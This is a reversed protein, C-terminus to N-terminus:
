VKTSKRIILKTELVIDKDIKEKGEIINILIEVARYGMQYNPQKVTTLTPEVLRSMYIDDYGVIGIDKPINLGRDKFSKMVGFAILDNGCFVSDFKIKSDLVKKGIEYGWSYKYEGEIVLEDNYDIRKEKLAKKYGKLRDKSPITSLPGSLFLINKYNNELLYSVAQYAGSINNVFVKGNIGELNSDRDVLVLPISNYRSREINLEEKASAALVIGDVMKEVLMNINKNEKEIDDDTNCFIISYGKEQAKDEAGRAIEPFFPNTIDPIILGITKTRKTVLSRAVNNPVYNYEKTIKLVKERTAQSIDKDKGNLVKSVTATSVGAIAAIDKITISM